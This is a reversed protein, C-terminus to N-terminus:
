VFLLFYFIRFSQFCLLVSVRHSLYNLNPMSNIVSTIDVKNVDSKHTTVQSSSVNDLIDSESESSDSIAELSTWFSAFDSSDVSQKPPHQFTNPVANENWQSSRRAPKPAESEDWQSSRRQTKLSAEEDWEPSRRSKPTENDDDWQSSRRVPKPTENEDTNWQSSRRASRPMQEKGEPLRASRSTGGANKEEWRAARLKQEEKTRKKEERQADLRGRATKVARRPTEEEEEWEM